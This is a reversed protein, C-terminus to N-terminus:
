HREFLDDIDKDFNNSSSSDSRFDNYDIEQSNIFGSLMKDIDVNRVINVIDIDLNNIIDFNFENILSKLIATLRKEIKQYDTDYCWDGDHEQFYSICESWDEISIASNLEDTVFSEVKDKFEGFINEDYIDHFELFEAIEKIEEENLDINSISEILFDYSQNKLDDWYHTLLMLLKSLEMIPMPNSIIKNLLTLINNKMSKEEHFFYSLNILYDYSKDQQLTDEFLSSMIRSIDPTPIIKERKLYLIQELSKISNLSKCVTIIKNVDKGYEVLIFDSISPNFLSYTEEGRICNRNLFSKTALRVMLDFDKEINSTDKINEFKIMKDYSKRLEKESIQGGNFVTLIVLNRVYANNQIKFCDRWIDKPNNLTQEIYSWYKFYSDISIRDVDTIFEILRPNFNKHRIINKYRKNKYLEDIFKEELNSLWIHNYLIKAKDFETLNEITLLFENNQIKSNAFVSSYLIGTNLINTRSTLIFIKTKDNKVRDIFKVIHSDKKNEIAEFYNSGLFDDFYFIQKKGRFYVNEAESLSEEISIFEYGKLVFYLCLNEALTTKGIGPEGSIIIVNNKKLMELAKYHCKTESYKKSDNKIREIEFESRGKIANNIIRVMSNSSTVWLKFHREEIHSNSSLLDNLDEQGYVDDDRCIYPHFINKIEKKNDRSLPLSTVFIYKEPNLKKVKKIEEQKLKSILGPYGTKLYHKFQLIIEKGEDSFFRGDVGKDKGPKFREIRKKVVTSILDIGLGEFEKDNLQAFDYSM